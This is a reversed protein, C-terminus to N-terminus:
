RIQFHASWTLCTLYFSSSQCPLLLPHRIQPSALHWHSGHCTPSFSAVFKWSQIGLISPMHSSHYKPILSPNLSWIDWLLWLVSHHFYLTPYWVTSQLSLQLAQSIKVLDLTYTNSHIAPSSHFHLGLFSLLNLFSPLKILWKHPGHDDVIIPRLYFPFIDGCTSLDKSTVYLLGKIPSM